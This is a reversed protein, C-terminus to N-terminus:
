LGILSSDATKLRATNDELEIWEVAGNRSHRWVVDIRIPNLIIEVKIQTRMFGDWGSITICPVPFLVM